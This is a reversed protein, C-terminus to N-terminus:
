SMFQFRQNTDEGFIQNNKACEVAAGLEFMNIVQEVFIMIWMGYTWFPMGMWWFLSNLVYIAIRAYTAEFVNDILPQVDEASKCNNAGM